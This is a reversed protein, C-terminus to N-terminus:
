PEIDEAKIKGAEVAAFLEAEEKSGVKVASWSPKNGVSGAAPKHTTVPPPTKDQSQGDGKEAAKALAAEAKAARDTLWQIFADQMEAPDDMQVIAPPAGRSLYYQKLTLFNREYELQAQAQQAQAQAQQAEYQQKEAMYAVLEEETLGETENKEKWELLSQYQTQLEKFQRQQEAMQRDMTSRLKNLDAVPVLKQDVPKGDDKKGTDPTGGPPVGAAGADPQSGPTTGPPLQDDQKGM